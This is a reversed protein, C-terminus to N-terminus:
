RQQGKRRRGLDRDRGPKEVLKAPVPTVTVLEPETTAFRGRGVEMAM